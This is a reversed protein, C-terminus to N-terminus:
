LGSPPSELGSYNAACPDQPDGAIRRECGLSFGVVLPLPLNGYAELLREINYTSARGCKKCIAGIHAEGADRMDHLTRHM